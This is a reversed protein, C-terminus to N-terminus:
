LIGTFYYVSYYAIEAQKGVIM